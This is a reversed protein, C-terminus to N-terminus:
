ESLPCGHRYFDVADLWVNKRVYNTEVGSIAALVHFNEEINSDFALVRRDGDPQTVVLGSIQCM